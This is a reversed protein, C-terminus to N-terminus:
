PTPRTALWHEPTELASSLESVVFGLPLRRSAAYERAIAELTGENNEIKGLAESIFVDFDQRDVCDESSWPSENELDIVDIMSAKILTAATPEVHWPKCHSPGLDPNERVYLADVRWKRPDRRPGDLGVVKGIRGIVRQFWEGSEIVGHIRVEDGLEYQYGESGDGHRHIIM